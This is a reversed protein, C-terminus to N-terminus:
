RQTLRLDLQWHRAKRRPPPDRVDRPAEVARHHDNRRVRRPQPLPPAPDERRHGPRGQNPVHRGGDGSESRRSRPRSVKRTCGAPGRDIWGAPCLGADRESRMARGPDLVLDRSFPRRSVCPRVDEHVDARRGQHYSGSGSGLGVSAWAALGDGGSQERRGLVEAAVPCSGTDLGGRSRRPFLARHLALHWVWM